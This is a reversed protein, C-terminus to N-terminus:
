YLWGFGLSVVRLPASVRVRTVGVGADHEVHLISHFLVLFRSMGLLKSCTIVLVLTLLSCVTFGSGYLNASGQIRALNCAEELFALAHNCSHVLFVRM